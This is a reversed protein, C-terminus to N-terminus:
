TTTLAGVVRLKENLERLHKKQEEIANIKWSNNLAMAAYEGFGSAVLADRDTFGSPKNALGMLGVAKGEVLLPVFM